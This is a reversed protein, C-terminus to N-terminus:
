ASAERELLMRKREVGWRYGSLGGDNRVVRHCPIAVAIANAACAQAVARASKPAAIRIAIDRYSVTSGVPIERLANWVQQQFVTGRADLPLILGREPAEVLEIAKSVLKGFGREAFAKDGNVLRAKPFREQLDQSLEEPDDGILVACIGRESAAVLVSGLSSEEIAFHIVTSTSGYNDNAPTVRREHADATDVSQKGKRSTEDPKCRKCPRFGAKEAEERTAHFTVNEPRALRAACSPRCYVGTTRVSYYFSGDAKPDRNVVAAWRGDRETAKALETSKTPAKMGMSWHAVGGARTATESKLDRASCEFQARNRRRCERHFARGAQDSSTNWATGM